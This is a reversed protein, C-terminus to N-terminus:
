RRDNNFGKGRLNQEHPVRTDAFAADQGAERLVDETVRHRRCDTPELEVILKVSLKLRWRLSPRHKGIGYSHLHKQSWNMQTSHPM